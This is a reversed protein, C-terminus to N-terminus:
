ARAERMAQAFADRQASGAPSGTVHELYASFIDDDSPGTGGGPRAAPASPLQSTWELHVLHGFRERLRAMAHPVRVIDNLRASVFAGEAFAFAPDTRLQEFSGELVALPRGAPVPIQEIELEGAGGLEVLSVTKPVGAESFSYPLPSGSYRVTSTIAQPRHVHGLAAYDFAAFVSAGANGLGGVSVDRESDSPTAGTIFAHALVVSRHPLADRDALIRAVAATLVAQHTRHAAGLDRWVLGPELYPIGYVEILGHADELRVPDAIDAPVTRLHLGARAFRRRGYGLRPGSDHNGSSVVVQAGTELLADVADDFMAIVEPGPLARDYVDGAVLVADVQRSAAERVLFELFDRQSQRMDAGHFTRGLHWDSTHIFRM